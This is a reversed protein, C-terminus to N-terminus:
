LLLNAWNDQQYNMYMQLYSELTQNTRETQGDMEPHYTTSFKLRIDLLKGLAQTFEATFTSGRNSIINSPVGHKSFVHKVYNRTLDEATATTTTPIFLSM